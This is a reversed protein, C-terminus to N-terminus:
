KEQCNLGLAQTGGAKPRPNAKEGSIPRGFTSYSFGPLQPDTELPDADLYIYRLFKNAPNKM